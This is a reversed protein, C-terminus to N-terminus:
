PASTATGGVSYTGHLSFKAHKVIAAARPDQQLLFSPMQIGHQSREYLRRGDTPLQLSAVARHYVATALCPMRGKAAQDACTASADVQNHNLKLVSADSLLEGIGVAQPRFPM